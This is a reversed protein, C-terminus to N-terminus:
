RHLSPTDLHHVASSLDTPHQAVVYSCSTQLAPANKGLFDGFFKPISTIPHFHCSMGSAVTAERSVSPSRFLRPAPGPIFASLPRVRSLYGNKGFNRQFIRAAGAHGVRRIPRPHASPCSVCPRYNNGSFFGRFIRISVTPGARTPLARVPQFKHSQQSVGAHRLSPGNRTFNRRFIRAAKVGAPPGRSGPM